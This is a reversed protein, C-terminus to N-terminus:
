PFPRPPNDVGPCCWFAVGGRALIGLLWFPQQWLLLFPQWFLVTEQSGLVYWGSLIGSINGM